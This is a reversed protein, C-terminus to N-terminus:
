TVQPPLASSGIVGALWKAANAPELELFLRVAMPDFHTGADAHLQAIAKERPWAQKYPRPNTLADWVDVVAFLRASIPIAEGSLGYPYGAGNFREHHYSPIDMAPRLYSIEQMLERALAPHRKMVVWEDQSLPGPKQLIHDPVGLKGIDHLLAGRRVHVIQDDSMGVARALDVTAATVRESHGATEHDRMDLLRVWASLTSDYAEVVRQNADHLKRYRNLRTITRVRARLEVRDFPKTIYDDAGANIGTLRYSQEDLCTVLVIPIDATRTDDRLAQLVEIGSMGPMMVDLLVLDPDLEFTRAIAEPGSAATATRYGQNALTDVLVKRMIEEDDVILILPQYAM